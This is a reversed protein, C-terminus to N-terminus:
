PSASSRSGIPWKLGRLWSGPRIKSRPSPTLEGLLLAFLEDQLRGYPLLVPSKKEGEGLSQSVLGGKIVGVRRGALDAVGEINGAGQRAFISIRSMLVSRTFLMRSERAPTIVVIPILDIDGGELAGLLDSFTEFVRYTIRLGSRKAVANMVDVGFGGPRDDPGIAYEPYFDRPVGVIVPETQARAAGGASAGVVLLAGVMVLVLVALRKYEGM